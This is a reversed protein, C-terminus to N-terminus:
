LDPTFCQLNARNGDVEKKFKKCYCNYGQKECDKCFKCEPIRM